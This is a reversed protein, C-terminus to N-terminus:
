KTLQRMPNCTPNKQHMNNMAYTILNCPLLGERVQLLNEFYVAAFAYIDNPQMLLVEKAIDKLLGQFGHPIRLKVNSLPVAM